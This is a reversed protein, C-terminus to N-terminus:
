HIQIYRQLQVVRGTDTPALYKGTYRSISKHRYEGAKIDTPALYKGTYRSIGTHRYTGTPNGGTRGVNVSFNSSNRVQGSFIGM